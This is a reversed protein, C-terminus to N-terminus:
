AADARSLVPTEGGPSQPQPCFDGAGASKPLIGFDTAAAPSQVHLYFRRNEKVCGKGKRKRLPTDAFPQKPLSTSLKVACSRVHRRHSECLLLYRSLIGGDKAKHYVATAARGGEGRSAGPVQLDFRQGPAAFAATSGPSTETYWAYPRVNHAQEISARRVPSLCARPVRLPYAADTPPLAALPQATHTGVGTKEFWTRHCLGTPAPTRV